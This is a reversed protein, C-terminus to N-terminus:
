GASARRSLAQSHATYVALGTWILVFGALRQGDFPEGFVTV